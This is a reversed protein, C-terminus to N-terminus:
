RNIAFKEGVDQEHELVEIIKVPINIKTHDRLRYFIYCKNPREEIRCILKKAMSVFKLLACLSELISDIIKPKYGCNHFNVM